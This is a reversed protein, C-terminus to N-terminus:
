CRYGIQYILILCVWVPGSPELLQHGRGLMIPSVSYTKVINEHDITVPGGSYPTYTISNIVDLSLLMVYLMFSLSRQCLGRTRNLIYAQPDRIDLLYEAGDYGGSAIVTPNEKTLPGFISSPPARIWAIARIASQHVTFYHTPFM